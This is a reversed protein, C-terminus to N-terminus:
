WKHGRPLRVVKGVVLEGLQKTVHPGWVELWGRARLEDVYPGSVASGDRTMVWYGGEDPAFRGQADVPWDDFM